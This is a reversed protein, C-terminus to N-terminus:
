KIRVRIHEAAALGIRTKKGNVSTILAGGFPERAKVAVKAGPVLGREKLYRLLAADHDGVEVIVVTEGAHIESLRGLPEREMVLEASPIPAGHPDREPHGLAEAMRAEVEESLIHEWNEAEEHVRDWAVGLVEYLYQEVLRHHRIMELAVKEGAETLVVGRYRTYRALGEESLRKLMQTVTPASVKMAEALRKTSVRAGSEGLRYIMKVYDQAARSV